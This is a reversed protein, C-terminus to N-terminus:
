YMYVKDFFKTKDEAAEMAEKMCMVMGDFGAILWIHVCMYACM